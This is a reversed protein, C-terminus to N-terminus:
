LWVLSQLLSSSRWEQCRKLQISVMVQGTESIYLDIDKEMHSLLFKVEDHTDNLVNPGFVSQVKTQASGIEMVEAIKNANVGNKVGTLLTESLLTMIGAVM